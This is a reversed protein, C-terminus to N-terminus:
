MPRTISTTTSIGANGEVHPAALADHAYPLNPLTFTMPIIDLSIPSSSM